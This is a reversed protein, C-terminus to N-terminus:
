TADVLLLLLLPELLVEQNRNRGEVLDALNGISVCASCLQTCHRVHGEGFLLLQHIEAIKIVIFIFFRTQKTKAPGSQVYIVPLYRFSAFRSIIM